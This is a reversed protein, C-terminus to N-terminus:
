PRCPNRDAPRGRRRGRCPRRTRGDGCPLTSRAGDARRHAPVKGRAFAGSWRWDKLGWSWGDAQNVLELKVEKGAFESLDVEVTAWGGQTTAQDIPKKLLPRGDAKVVLTWDGRDDNAVVLRLVTKRDAALAVARSLVAGVERDLPHTMFVNKRGRYEARRGPDMDPGCHSLTWGPLVAELAAQLQRGTGPAAIQEMEEDTFRSGAIPGPNRSQELLSPKPAQVPIVLVDNGAADREIRGGSRVVADRM